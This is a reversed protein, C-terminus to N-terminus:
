HHISIRYEDLEFATPNSQFYQNVKDIASSLDLASRRITNPTNLTIHPICRYTRTEPIMTIHSYESSEKAKRGVFASLKENMKVFYRRDNERPFLIVELGSYNLSGLQRFTTARKVHFNLRSTKLLHVHNNLFRYIELKFEKARNSPVNEIFGLTVHYLSNVKELGAPLAVEEDIRTQFEPKVLLVRVILTDAHAISM